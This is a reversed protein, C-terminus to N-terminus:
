FVEERTFTPQYPTSAGDTWASKLRVSTSPADGGGLVAGYWSPNDRIDRLLTNFQEVLDKGDDNSGDGGTAAHAMRVLGEVRSVTWSKLISAPEGAYPAPLGSARLAGNLMAETETIWAEMQSISPKTSASITRGPLHAQVDSVSAYAM